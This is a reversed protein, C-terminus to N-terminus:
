NGNRKSDLTVIQVYLFNKVWKKTDKAIIAKKPSNCYPCNTIGYVVVHFAYLKGCRDCKTINKM